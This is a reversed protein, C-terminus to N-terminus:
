VCVWRWEEEKRLVITEVDSTQTMSDPVQPLPRVDEEVQPCSSPVGLESTQRHGRVWPVSYPGPSPILGTWLVFSVFDLPRRRIEPGSVKLRFLCSTLTRQVKRKCPSCGERFYEKVEYLVRTTSDRVRQRM